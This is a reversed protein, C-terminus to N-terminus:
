KRSLDTWHQEGNEIKATAFIFPPSYSVDTVKLENSSWEFKLEGTRASDTSRMLSKGELESDSANNRLTFQYNYTSTSTPPYQKVACKYKGDPSVSHTYAVPKTPIAPDIFIREYNAVLYIAVGVIVILVLAVGLLIALRARKM